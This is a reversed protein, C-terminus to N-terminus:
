LGLRDRGSSTSPTAPKSSTARSRFWRAPDGGRIGLEGAARTFNQHRGAAEFVVLSAAAPLTRRLKDM